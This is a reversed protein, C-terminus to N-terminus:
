GRAGNQRIADAEQESIAIWVPNIQLNGLPAIASGCQGCVNLAMPSPGGCRSIIAPVHQTGDLHESKNIM